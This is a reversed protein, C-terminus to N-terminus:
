ELFLHPIFRSSNTTIPSSDERIGLGCAQGDIIWSGIVPYNQNFNPLAQYAQYIKPESEYFGQTQIQTEGAIVLRINGGERSLIPKEIYDLGLTQPTFDAPLLNPHHPYLEWLIALIVKNSLLMRWAPEILHLKDHHLLEAIPERLLWEWPYLKFLVDIRNESLDTFYKGNWGIEHLYIPIAEIGVQSATDRLYEVTGQDEPSDKTVAFYIQNGLRQQIQMWGSLLKEHLSNFQDAHPFVDNLWQWQVVSAEYLATPTDANFELLKPPTKSGDWALDFRGYISSENREWSRTILKHFQTPIHFDAFRQKTVIHDVANLCLQYLSESVSELTDIQAATFAYYASEDWYTPDTGDGYDITHFQFGIEACRAKWHPRPQIPIRQM